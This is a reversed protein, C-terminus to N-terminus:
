KAPQRKVKYLISHLWATALLLLYAISVGTTFLILYTFELPTSPPPLRLIVEKRSGAESSSYLDVIETEGNVTVKVIGSWPHSLFALKVPGISQGSWTMVAPEGSVAAPVGERIEWKGQRFLTEPALKLLGVSIGEVWVESGKAVPNREGTAYLELTIAPPNIGPYLAPTSIHAGFLIGWALVFGVFALIWRHNKQPIGPLIVKVNLWYTLVVFFLSLYLGIFALKLYSETESQFSYAWYSISVCVAIPIAPM